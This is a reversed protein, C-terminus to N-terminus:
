PAFRAGGFPWVQEFRIGKLFDVGTALPLDRMVAAEISAGPSILAGRRLLECGELRSLRQQSESETCAPVQRFEPCFQRMSAAIAFRLRRGWHKQYHAVAEVYLM